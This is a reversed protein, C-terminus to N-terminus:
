VHARGIEATDLELGYKPAFLTDDQLAYGLVSSSHAVSLGPLPDFRVDLGAASVGRAALGLMQYEPQHLLPNLEGGMLIAARSSVPMLTVFSRLTRSASDPQPGTGTAVLLYPTLTLQDLPQAPAELLALWGAADADFGNSRGAAHASMSGWQRALLAHLTLWGAELQLSAHATLLDSEGALTRGDLAAAKWWKDADMMEAVILNRVMEALTGNRDRMWFAGLTIGGLTIDKWSLVAGSM